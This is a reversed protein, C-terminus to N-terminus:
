LQVAWQGPAPCPLRAHLLDNAPDTLSQVATDTRPGLLVCRDRGKFTYSQSAWKRGMWQVQPLHTHICSYLSSPM